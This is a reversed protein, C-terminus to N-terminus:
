QVVIHFAELLVQNALSASSISKVEIDITSSGDVLEFSDVYEQVAGVVGTGSCAYIGSSITMITAELRWAQGDSYVNISNEILVVGNAEISVVKDDFNGAFDGFAIVKAVKGLGLLGVDVPISALVEKTPTATSYLPGTTYFSNIFNISVWDTSDYAWPSPLLRFYTTSDRNYVLMGERRRLDPIGDREADDAVSRLGDIGYIPDIVPYTDTSDTPAIIGTVRVTGPIISM